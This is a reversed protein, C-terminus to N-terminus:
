KAYQHLIYRDMIKDSLHKGFWWKVDHETIMYRTAPNKATLAQYIGKAIRIPKISHNLGDGVFKESMKWLREQHISTESSEQKAQDLLAAAKDWIKTKILGPEIISVNVGQSSIEKEFVTRIDKWHLNQHM